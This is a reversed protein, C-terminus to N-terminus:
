KKTRIGPVPSYWDNQPWLRLIEAGNAFIVQPGVPRLEKAASLFVITKDKGTSPIVRDIEVRVIILRNSRINTFPAM